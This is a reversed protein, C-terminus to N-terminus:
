QHTLPTIWTADSSLDAQESEGPYYPVPDTLLTIPVVAAIFALFDQRALATRKREDLEDLLALTHAMDEHSMSSLKALLQEVETM